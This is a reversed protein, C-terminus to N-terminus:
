TAFQNGPRHMDTHVGIRRVYTLDGCGTCRMRAVDEPVIHDKRDDECMEVASVTGTLWSM